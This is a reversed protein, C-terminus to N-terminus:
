EKINTDIPLAIRMYTGTGYHGPFSWIRGGHAEVMARSIALGLGTGRSGSDGVPQTYFLDFIKNRDESAIGPGQDIVDIIVDPPSYLTQITIPQEAPSYRIANDLLNGLVQEMLARHVYLRNVKSDLKLIVERGGLVDKFRDIVQECLDRIEFSERKLQFDPQGLRIMDLLNQIYSTLRDAEQLVSNLLAQRDADALRDQYDLLTSTSGIISALPTKLDHSVSSLLAARVRNTESEFRSVQLQDTLIIREITARVDTLMTQLQYDVALPLVESLELGIAMDKGLPHFQMTAGNLTSTFHGAMQQHSLCWQLAAQDTLGLVTMGGAVRQQNIDIVSCGCQLSQGIVRECHRAVDKLNNASSLAQSLGLLMQTLHQSKRLARLQQHQHAALRGVPLGVGLLVLLSLFDSDNTVHFTYFPQVFFFNCVVFSLLAMMTAAIASTNMASLLVALIFLLPMASAPIWPSLLLGLITAGVVCGISTLFQFGFSRRNFGRWKKSIKERDAHKEEIVTLELTGLNRLLYNLLSKQWPWKPHSQGLLLQSISQTRAVSLIAEGINPDNVTIIHAGLKAAFTLNEEMDLSLSQVASVHLVFWPIQRRLAMRQASRILRKADSKDGLCLMLREQLVVEPKGQTRWHLNMNGQVHSAVSQIALERLATLNGVSFFAQLATQAQEPVYVLGQKLREILQQPPLDVLLITQADLVVQDPVIENVRVQTLQYILDNLSELHQVNLTTYVDIGASLLEEVDQYRKEHRSGPINTHAFEDVLVLQPHRKLIGDLDLEAYTQGRYNVRQCPQIPLDVTLTHTQIRGHTEVVGILLDIGQEYLQKAEQLMAYTKGVGAAAGLFIKLKGRESDEQQNLEELLADARSEDRM